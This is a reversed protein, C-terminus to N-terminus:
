AIEPEPDRPCVIPDRRAGRRPGVRRGALTVRFRFRAGDAVGAAAGLRAGSPARALRRNRLLRRVARDVNRRPRRVDPVHRSAAGRAPVVTGASAERRSLSVETALVEADAGEGLFADRMREVVRGVSPFDIAIEDAFCEHLRSVSELVALGRAVTRISLFRPECCPRNVIPASGISTLAACRTNVDDSM